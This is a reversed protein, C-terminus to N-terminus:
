EAEYTKQKEKARVYDTRANYHRANKKSRLTDNVQKGRPKPQAIVLKNDDKKGEAILMLEKLLEM